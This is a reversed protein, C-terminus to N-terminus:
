KLVKMHVLDDDGRDQQDMFETNATEQGLDLNQKGKMETNLYILSMWYRSHWPSTSQSRGCVVGQSSSSTTERQWPPAPSDFPLSVNILILFGGITTSLPQNTVSENSFLSKFWKFFAPISSPSEVEPTKSWSGSDGSLSNQKIQNRWM